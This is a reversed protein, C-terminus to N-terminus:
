GRRGRLVWYIGGKGNKELTGVRKRAPANVHILQYMDSIVSSNDGYYSHGLLSSEVASVDITEMPPMVIPEGLVDGARKMEHLQHSLQM